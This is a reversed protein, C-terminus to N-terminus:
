YQFMDINTITLIPATLPNDCETVRAVTALTTVIAVSAEISYISYYRYFRAETIKYLAYPKTKAPTIVAETDAPSVQRLSKDINTTDSYIAM